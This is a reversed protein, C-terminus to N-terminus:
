TRTSTEVAGMGNVCIKNVGIKNVGIEIGSIRRAHHDDVVGRCAIGRQTRTPACTEHHLGRTDGTPPLM